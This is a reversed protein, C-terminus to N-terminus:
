AGRGPTSLEQRVQRAGPEGYRRILYSGPPCGFALLRPTIANAIADADAGYLYLVGWGQGFEDGDFEGIGAEDVLSRFGDGLDSIAEREKASGFRDDSLRIYAIVAQESDGM